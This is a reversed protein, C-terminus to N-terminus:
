AKVLDPPLEVYDVSLLFAACTRLSGLEERGCKSVGCGVLLLSELLEGSLSGSHLLCGAGGHPWLDVRTFRGVLSKFDQLSKVPSCVQCNLSLSRAPSRGLRGQLRDIM